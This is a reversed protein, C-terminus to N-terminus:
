PAEEMCVNIKNLIRELRRIHNERELLTDELDEIEWGLEEEKSELAEREGM